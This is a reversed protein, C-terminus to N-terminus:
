DNDTRNPERMSIVKDKTTTASTKYEQGRGWGHTSTRIPIEVAM